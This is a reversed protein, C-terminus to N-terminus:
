GNKKWAGQAKHSRMWVEDLAGEEFMKAIWVIQGAHTSLHATINLLDEFVISHMSPEPSTDNLREPTLMQFTKEAEAVMGDFLALLEAKPIAKRESFEAARDRTYDFGGLNRNLFHNLSGTLHLVLNGISNSAENPRWWIQEDTLKEVATRIQAPFVGTIRTHFATLAIENM